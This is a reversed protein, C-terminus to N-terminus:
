RLMIRMTKGDPMLRRYIEARPDALVEKIWEIREARQWDFRAKDKATRSSDRFFAHNFQEPFFNVKIGDFTLLPSVKVFARRYHDRYAAEDPLKLLAPLSM